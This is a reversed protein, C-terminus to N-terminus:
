FILHSHKQVTFRIIPSALNEFIAIETINM